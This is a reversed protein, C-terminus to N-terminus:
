RKRLLTLGDAIPLLTLTVREDTLLFQNLQRTALTSAHQDNPDVVAGDLLTNDIAIFGGRRVLKLCREYYNVNNQKDADIFAVDFNEHQGSDLLQDLTELAPGLRSEIKHSLGATAWFTKAMQTTEANVDCTILSGNAPLASAMWLASYGTFIGIELVNRAGILEILWALFQGQEPAIQMEANPLTATARRLAKMTNTERCSVMQIYQYLPETLQITRNTM